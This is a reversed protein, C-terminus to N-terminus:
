SSSFLLLLGLTAARAATIFRPLAWAGDCGGRALGGAGGEGDGARGAEAALSLVEEPRGLLITPLGSGGGGDEPGRDAPGVRVGGGGGLRGAGAEPGGGGGPLGDPGGGGGVLLVEFWGLPPVTPREPGGCFRGGGGGARRSRPLPPVTPLLPPGGGGGAVCGGERGRLREEPLQLEPPSSKSDRKRNWGLLSNGGGSGKLLM